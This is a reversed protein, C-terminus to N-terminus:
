PSVQTRVYKDLATRSFRLERGIKIAPIKGEKALKYLTRKHVKMYAAAQKANLVDANEM